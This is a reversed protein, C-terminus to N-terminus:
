KLLKSKIQQMVIETVENVSQPYGWAKRIGKGGRESRYTNRDVTKNINQYYYKGDYDKNTRANREWRKDRYAKETPLNENPNKRILYTGDNFIIPRYHLNPYEFRKNNTDRKVMTWYDDKGIAVFKDFDEDSMNYLDATIGPSFRMHRTDIGGHERAFNALKQSKFSENIIAENLVNKVCGDIITNLIEVSENKSKKVHNPLGKRKTKAFKRVEKRTMSDAAKKIEPSPNDLEGKKYADVMGFFRQQSASKAPM